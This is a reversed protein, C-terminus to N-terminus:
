QKRNSFFEYRKTWHWTNAWDCGPRCGLSLYGILVECRERNTYLHKVRQIIQYYRYNMICDRRFWIHTYICMNNVISLRQDPLLFLFIFQSLVLHRTGRFDERKGKPARAGYTRLRQTHDGPTGRFVFIQFEVSDCWQRNIRTWAHHRNQYILQCIAHSPSKGLSQFSRQDATKTTLKNKDLFVFLQYSQRCRKQKQKLFVFYPIGHKFM